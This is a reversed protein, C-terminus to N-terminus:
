LKEKQFSDVLCLGKITSLVIIMGKQNWPITQFNHTRKNFCSSSQEQTTGTFAAESGLWMIGLNRKPTPYLQIYLRLIAGIKWLVTALSENGSNETTVTSYETLLDRTTQLSDGQVATTTGPLSFSGRQNQPFITHQPLRRLRKGYWRCMHPLSIYIDNNNSWIQITAKSVDQETSLESITEILSKVM